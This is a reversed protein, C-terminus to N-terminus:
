GAMRARTDRFFKRCRGADSRAGVCAGAPPELKGGTQPM